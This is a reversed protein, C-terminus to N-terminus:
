SENKEKDLPEAQLGEKKVDLTLEQVSVNLLESKQSENNFTSVVKSSPLNLVEPFKKKLCDTLQAETSVEGFAVFPLVPLAVHYEPLRCFGVKNALVADESFNIIKDQTLFNKVYFLNINSYFSFFNENRHVPIENAPFSGDGFIQENILSTSYINLMKDIFITRDASKFLGMHISKEWFTAEIGTEKEIKYREKLMEKIIDFQKKQKLIETALEQPSISLDDSSKSFIKIKLDKPNVNSGFEQDIKKIIDEPDNFAAHFVLAKDQSDCRVFVGICPCLPGVIASQALGDGLVTYFGEPVFVTSKSFTYKGDDYSLNPVYASSGEQTTIRLYSFPVEITKTEGSRDQLKEVIAQTSGLFSLCFIFIGASKINKIM